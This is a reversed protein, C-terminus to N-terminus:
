QACPAISPYAYSSVTNIIIVNKYAYSSVTNNTSPMLTLSCFKTTDHTTIYM